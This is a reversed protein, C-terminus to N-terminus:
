MWDVKSVGSPGAFWFCCFSVSKPTSDDARSCKVRCSAMTTLSPRFCSFSTRAISAALTAYNLYDKDFNIAGTYDVPGKGLQFGMLTATAVRGGGTCRRSFLVVVLSLFSFVGERRPGRRFATERPAPTILTFPHFFCFFLSGLSSVVFGAAM